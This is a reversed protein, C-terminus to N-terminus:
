YFKKLKEKNMPKARQFSRLLKLQKAKQFGLIFYSISKFSNIFSFSLDYYNKYNYEKRFLEIKKLLTSYKNKKPLLINNKKINGRM